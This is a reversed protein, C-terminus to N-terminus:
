SPYIIAAADAIPFRPGYMLRPLVKVPCAVEERRGDHRVVTATRSLLTRYSVRLITYWDDPDPGNKVPKGIQVVKGSRADVIRM